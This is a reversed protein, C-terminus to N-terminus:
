PFGRIPPEAGPGRQPSRGWVGTISEREVREGHAGGLSFEQIRWQRCSHAAIAALTETAHVLGAACKFTSTTDMINLTFTWQKVVSTSHSSAKAYDSVAANFGTGASAHHCHAERTTILISRM